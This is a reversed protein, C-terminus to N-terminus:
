ETSKPQSRYVPTFRDRKGGMSISEVYYYYAQNPSIAEDSYEYSQPVDTTGYGPIPLDTIRVFPGQEDEARYVDYGFNEVESATKWRITNTLGAGTSGDNGDALSGMAILLLSCLLNRMAKLM